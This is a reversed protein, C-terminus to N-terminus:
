QSLEEKVQKLDKVALNVPDIHCAYPYLQKSHRAKSSRFVTLFPHLEFSAKWPKGLKLGNTQINIDDRHTEWVKWMGIVIHAKQEPYISYSGQFKKPIPLPLNELSAQSAQSGADFPIGLIGCMRIVDGMAEIINPTRNGKDGKVTTEQIYDWVVLSPTQGYAKKIGNIGAMVMNVTMPADSPTDKLMSEGIIYIPLTNPRLTAAKVKAPEIMGDWFKEPDLAPHFLLSQADAAEEYTVIVVCKDKIGERQLRLAEEKAIIRLMTSKLEGPRAIWIRVWQPRNPPIFLDMLPSGASIGPSGYLLKALEYLALQTEAPTHVYKELAIEETDDLDIKNLNSM